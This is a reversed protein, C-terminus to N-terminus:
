QLAQMLLAWFHEAAGQQTLNEKSQGRMMSPIGSPSLSLTQDGVEITILENFSNGRSTDDDSYTIGSGFM